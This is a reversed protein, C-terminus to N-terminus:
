LLETFYFEVRPNDDFRKEATVQAISFSNQFIINEALLEIYKICNTIHPKTNHYDDKKNGYLRHSKRMPLPFYFNIVLALPRKADKPKDNYQNEITITDRLRLAKTNETFGGGNFRGADMYTPDGKLVFVIKPKNQVKEKEHDNM